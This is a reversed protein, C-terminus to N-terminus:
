GDIGHSQKGQGIGPRLLNPLGQGVVLMYQRFLRQAGIDGGFPLQHALDFGAVAEDGDVQEIAIGPVVLIDPAEDCLALDTLQRDDPDAMHRRAVHRKFAAKGQAIWGPIRLLELPSQRAMVLVSDVLSDSKILTGDLDVCLPVGAIENADRSRM